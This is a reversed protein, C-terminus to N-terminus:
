VSGPNVSQPPFPHDADGPVVTQEPSFDVAGANFTLTADKELTATRIANGVAAYTLKASYNLGLAEANGKDTTDLTGSRLLQHPGVLEPDFNSPAPGFYTLPIDAGISPPAPQSNDGTAPAATEQALASFAGGLLFVLAFVAALLRAPATQAISPSQFVM